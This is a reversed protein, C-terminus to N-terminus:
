INYILYKINFIIIIILIIIIIIIIIKIIIMIIIIIIIMIIIIIFYLGKEWKKRWFGSEFNIMNQFFEDKNQSNGKWLCHLFMWCVHIIDCEFGNAQLSIARTLVVSVELEAM